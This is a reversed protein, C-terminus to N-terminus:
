CRLLETSGPLLYSCVRLYSSANSLRALQTLLTVLVCLAPSVRADGPGYADNKRKLSNSAGSSGPSISASSSDQILIIPHSAAAAEEPFSVDFATPRRRTM